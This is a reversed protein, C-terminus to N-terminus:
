SEDEEQEISTVPRYTVEPNGGALRSLSHKRWKEAGTEPYDARWHSGRTERRELAAATLLRATKLMNKLEFIEVLAYNYRKSNGSIKIQRSKDALSKIKETARNLSNESRLVGSCATMTKQLETKIKSASFNSSSDKFDEIMSIWKGTYKDAPSSIPENKTERGITQGTKMGMVNIELLSNGGLRNAGHLSLCACEGAAYLGEINNKYKVRGNLDTPIGGMMYHATPRVPIPKRAPDIGLYNKSLNVVEPLKESLRKIGTLDLNVFNEGDIGRGENIETFIARTVIDRPALELKEPAYNKMFRKNNNNKLQGGHSRAAETILFGLQRVGTPHFQMFELDQVSLGAELALAFGDATSSKSNSTVSFLEGCGGTALLVARSNFKHLSGDAINYALLGCIKNDEVILQLVFFENYFSINNDSRCQDHLTQMLVHGTRDHFYCLRRAPNKNSTHGPFQRRAIKNESNRSFPVGFNELKRIQEPGNECIFEVADEDALGRGARLTDSIHNSVSDSGSETRVAAIGGQACTTPSRTPKVKSIVAINKQGEGRAALAARLGAGGAGVITLLHNHEYLETM